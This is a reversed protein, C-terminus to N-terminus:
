NYGKLNFSISLGDANFDFQNIVEIAQWNDVDFDCRLKNYMSKMVVDVLPEIYKTQRSEYDDDLDSKTLVMFNGTYRIGDSETKIIVPDLFLVTEGVDYGEVEDAVFNTAEILNQYDRRANVFRWEKSTAFSEFKNKVEM